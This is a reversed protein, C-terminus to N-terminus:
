DVYEGRNPRERGFAFAEARSAPGFAVIWM